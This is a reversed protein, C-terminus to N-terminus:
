WASARCNRFRRLWGRTRWIRWRRFRCRTRFHAGADSDAYRGSQDQRLDAADASGGASVDRVRQDVAASGARGRRHEPESQIAAHHRLERRLQDVDDAATGAGARVAARAARDGVVGDRGPQRRSLVHDGPHDPLGSGASGFGAAAQLRGGGVLLIGVMLLSTAVPRLIFTRSPNMSRRAANEQEKGPTSKAPRKARVGAREGPRRGAAQGRGGDGGRRGAGARFHDRTNDGETRGVTVNRFRSRRNRSAGAVVYTDIALQAPHGRQELLTVGHKQEVLLRANVFQSPFLKHDTNAFNARLRLTGTTPDIQQGRDGANGDRWSTRTRATGRRVALQQGAHMKHLVPPLQDEALTFIVSIPDMQTIVVLGNTDAAHVINGPDVLRLGVM